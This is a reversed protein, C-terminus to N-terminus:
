ELLDCVHGVAAWLEDYTRAAAKRILTKLKSFAMEIPNLDPSYSPLYFLRLKGDQLEVSNKLAKSHHVPHNDLILFIPRNRDTRLRSLFRIMVPTTFRKDYLMFRIKGQHTVSAIYNLRAHRDQILKVEPTQGQPAYGRGRHDRSTLGSQDVWHIQARERKAWSKVRPYEQELWSQVAVPDQEYARTLPKQPTYGWRKLYEGVTRIAINQGSQQQM